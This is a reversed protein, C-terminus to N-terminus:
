TQHAAQRHYHGARWRSGAVRVLATLPVPSPPFCRYFALEGTTRNRRILLQSSGPHPDTLDMVAWDYFRDRDVKDVCAPASM